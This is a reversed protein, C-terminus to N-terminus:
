MTYITYPIYQTYWRNEVEESELVMCLNKDRSRQGGSFIIGHDIKLTPKNTHKYGQLIFLLGQECAPTWTHTYTHLHTHTHTHTPTHTHAHTRAHM